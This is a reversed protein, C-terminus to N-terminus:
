GSKGGQKLENLDERLTAVEGELKSLEKGMTEMLRLLASTIDHKQHNHLIHNFLTEYSKAQHPCIPCKIM